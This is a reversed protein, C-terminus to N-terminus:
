RRTWRRAPRGPSTRPCPSLSTPHTPSPGDAQAFAASLLAAFGAVGFMIRSLRMGAERSKRSGRISPAFFPVACHAAGQFPRFSDSRSRPGFRSPTSIRAWIPTPLPAARKNTGIKSVQVNQAQLMFKLVPNPYWNLGLTGIRQEGGRVGGAPLAAGLWAKMTTSTSRRTARRWNGHAGAGGSSTFNVRPKPNSFAANATSWGRSEGTLVWSGEAYWGDFGQGRLTPQHRAPRHRIQFLRGPRPFQRLDRRKGSELELCRHCQRDAVSVFKTSNDDVILEPPNSLTFARAANSAANANALGSCM